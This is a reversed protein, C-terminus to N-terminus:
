VCLGGVWQRGTGVLLGAGGCLPELEEAGGAYGPWNLAVNIILGVWREALSLGACLWPSPAPAGAGSRLCM